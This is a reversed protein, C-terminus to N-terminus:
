IRRNDLNIYNIIRTSLLHSNEGIIDDLLERMTMCPGNKGWNSLATYGYIKSEDEIISLYHAHLKWWPDKENRWVVLIMKADLDRLVDCIWVAWDDCDFNHEPFNNENLAKQFRTSTPVAEFLVFWADKKWHKKTKYIIDIVESVKLTPIEIAEKRILWRYFQNWKKHLGSDLYFDLLLM